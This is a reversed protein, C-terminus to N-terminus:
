TELVGNLLYNSIRSNSPASVSMSMLGLHQHEEWLSELQHLNTVHTVPLVQQTFKKSIDAADSEIPRKRKEARRLQTKNYQLRCSDHWKAQHQKLTAEIGEGDDLRSLNLSWDINSFSVLLDAITMYGGGKKDRTSESSGRRHRGPVFCVQELRNKPAANIYWATCSGSVQASKGNGCGSM